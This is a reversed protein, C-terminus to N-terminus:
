GWSLFRQGFWLLILCQNRRMLERWLRKSCGCDFFLHEVCEVCHKSYVCQVEGRYGGSLLKERTTLGKRSALRLIFYLMPIALAFGVLMWWEVKPRRSRIKEWTDNGAYCKKEKKRKKKKKFFNAWMAEANDGIKVFCLSSQINVLDESRAPPWHWDKGLMVTPLKADLMSGLDYVVRYGYKEV